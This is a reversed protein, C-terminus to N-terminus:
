RKVRLRTVISEFSDEYRVYEAKPCVFEATYIWEKKMFVATVVSIEEGPGFYRGHDAGDYYYYYHVGGKRKRAFHAGCAGGTLRPFKTTKLCSETDRSPPVKGSSHVPCDPDDCKPVACDKDALYDAFIAGVNANVCGPCNWKRIAVSAWNVAGVPRDSSFFNHRYYIVLSIETNQGIGYPDYLGWGPPLHFVEDQASYEGPLVKNDAAPVAVSFFLCNLILFTGYM